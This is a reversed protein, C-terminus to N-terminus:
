QRMLLLVTLIGFLGAMWGAQWGLKKPARPRPYDPTLGAALLRDYLHPHPMRDNPMVAPIQNAQYVHELARAYIGAQEENDRAMRDARVEMKRGLRRAFVLVLSSLVGLLAIGVFEFSHLAPRMFILPFFFLSGVLRGALTMRTETLHGLEHACVAAIEEDSLSELLKRSFVLERTTPFAAAYAYPGALLWCGRVNVGVQGATRSVIQELREPPASILRLRRAIRLWMGWNIWLHYALVVLGILTAQWGFTEPMIWAAGILVLWVSSRLLWVASVYRVWERFRLSPIIERDFPYGGLVAGAFGSLAPLLLSTTAEPDILKGALFCNVPILWLNTAAAVRVPYLRRARETWHEGASRRWPILALWNPLWTLLGAAVFCVLPIVVSLRREGVM